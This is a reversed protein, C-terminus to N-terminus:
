AAGSVASIQSPACQRYRASGAAPIWHHSSRNRRSIAGAAGLKILSYPLSSRGPCTRSGPNVARRRSRTSYRSSRGALRTSAARSGAPNLIVSILEPKSSSPARSFKPSTSASIPEHQFEIASKLFVPKPNQTCSALDIAHQHVASYTLAPWHPM